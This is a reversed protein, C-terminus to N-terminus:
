RVTPSGPLGRPHDPEAPSLAASSTAHAGGRRNLRPGPRGGPHDRAASTEMVRSKGVAAAAEAVAVFAQAVPVADEGVVGARGREGVDQAATRLEELRGSRSCNRGRGSRPACRCPPATSGPHTRAPSAPRPAPPRILPGYKAHSPGRGAFIRDM